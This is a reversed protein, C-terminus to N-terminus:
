IKRKATTADIAYDFVTEFRDTVAKIDYNELAFSRAKAAANARLTEDNLLQLAAKVFAPQDVPDVVLGAGNRRVLDSALNERPAALLVPRGACFYSQVKSPVSFIGAEPEITAVAVDATALVLPLDAFPQLPLLILNDLGLEAKAQELHAVGVGQSVTVVNARGKVARALQVLLDPNHKLGLTGSYLFNFSNYLGYRRAWENDKPYPAIDNLAGWNEIVFVNAETGTWRAALPSFANTIVVVADSSQFQRRELFRYYAGIMAGPPGLKKRLLQSVAVSYFDQVWFVFKSDTRKCANVIASQAETPTNGSIVIDPKDSHVLKAVAKGYAVDDFRRRVFSAKDYPRSLKVGTFSLRDPDVSSRELKGKPGLDGHFYAHSVEHGRVALERSLDVQFPHGAYDHVFIKM